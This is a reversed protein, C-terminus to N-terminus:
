QIRAPVVSCGVEAAIGDLKADDFVPLVLQGEISGLSVPKLASKLSCTFEYM